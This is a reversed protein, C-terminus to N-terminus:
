EEFHALIEDLTRPTYNMWPMMCGVNYIRMPYDECKNTKIYEMIFDNERTTHVHGHLMLKRGRFSGDHALIPYHSLIIVRGNDDVKDYEVINEFLKKFNTSHCKDHNGKILRKRGNLGKAFNFDQDKFRWMFDGLVYVLDDKGVVSNWNDKMTENMEEVSSFPRGDFKIINEHGFHTDAIYFIKKKTKDDMTVGKKIKTPLSPRAGEELL